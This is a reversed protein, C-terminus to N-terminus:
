RLKYLKHHAVPTVQCTALAVKYTITFNVFANSIQQITVSYHRILNKKSRFPELVPRM